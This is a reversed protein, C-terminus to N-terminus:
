LGSNSELPQTGQLHAHFEEEILDKNISAGAFGGSSVALAVSRMMNVCDGAAYVGAVTTRHMADIQLLHNDGVECGLQQPILCHQEFAPRAYVAKLAFASGDKLRLNTLYGGDHEIRDVATEHIGVGQSEIARRQESSLTSAGNTFLTLDRTWHGILKVMEFASDGNALIGTPEDRVEYGHCYPCHLVSIGWCDSFGDIEPLIDRVGSAFLLRRAAFYAGTDAQIRFGGEDVVGATAKARLFTVGPYRLVQDRARSAIAAPEAGDHTIFNHSHPTQWNCPKGSDIILVKRLSRGLAMAASLGAYSGGIIVVDYKDM